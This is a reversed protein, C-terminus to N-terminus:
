LFIFEIPLMRKMVLFLPCIAINQGDFFKLFKLFKQKRNLEFKKKWLYIQRFYMFTFNELMIKMKRPIIAAQFRKICALHTRYTVVVRLM